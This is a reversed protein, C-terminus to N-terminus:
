DATDFGDAFITENTQETVTITVTAVNSSDEGDRAAYAFTDTGVFNISPRYVFGGSADFWLTGHVPGDALIATLTDGEPDSDNTLVGPTDTFVGHKTGAHKAGLARLGGILM